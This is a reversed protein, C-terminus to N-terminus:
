HLRPCRTSAQLTLDLSLETISEARILLTKTLHDLAEQQSLEHQRLLEHLAESSAETLQEGIREIQIAKGTPTVFAVAVRGAHSTDDGRWWLYDQLTENSEKRSAYRRISGTLAYEIADCVTSKGSGNRGSIIAFGPAFDLQLKGKVGRFGEIELYTLKV